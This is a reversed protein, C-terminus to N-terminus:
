INVHHVDNSPQKKDRTRSNSQTVIKRSAFSDKKKSQQFDEPVVGCFQQLM